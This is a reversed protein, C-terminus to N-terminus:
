KPKEPQDDLPDPEPDRVVTKNGSGEAPIPAIGVAGPAYKRESQKKKDVEIEVEPMTETM